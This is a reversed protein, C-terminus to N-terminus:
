AASGSAARSRRATRSARPAADRAPDVEAEPARGAGVLQRHERQAAVRDSRRCTGAPRRELQLAVEGVRLRALRHARDRARARVHRQPDEARAEEARLERRHEPQGVRERRVERRLRQQRRELDIADANWGDSCSCCGYAITPAFTITASSSSSARRSKVEGCCDNVFMRRPRRPWSGGGISSMSDYQVGGSFSRAEAISRASTRRSARSPARPSSRTRRPSPRRRASRRPPSRVVM